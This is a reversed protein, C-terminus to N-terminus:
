HECTVIACKLELRILGGIKIILKILYQIQKKEILYYFRTCNRQFEYFETCLLGNTKGYINDFRNVTNM